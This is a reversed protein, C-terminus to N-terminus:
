RWATADAAAACGHVPITKGEFNAKLEACAWDQVPGPMYGHLTIGIEDFPDDAGISNTAWAYYRHGMQGVFFVVGFAAFLMLTQTKTLRM